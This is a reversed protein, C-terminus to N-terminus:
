ARKRTAIWYAFPYGLLLCILTNLFALWLSRVAVTRVLPEGLKIWWDLTWEGLLRSAPAQEARHVLIRRHHHAASRLLRRSLRLHAARHLVRAVGEAREAKKELDPTAVEPPPDELMTM